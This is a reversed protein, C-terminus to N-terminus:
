LSRCVCLAFSASSLASLSLDPDRGRQVGLPCWLPQASVPFNWLGPPTLATHVLGKGFPFLCWFSGCLGWALRLCALGSRGSVPCSM